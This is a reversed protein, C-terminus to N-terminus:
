KCLITKHYKTNTLSFALAYPLTTSIMSHQPKLKSSDQELRLTVGGFAKIKIKKSFPTPSYSPNQDTEGSSNRHM